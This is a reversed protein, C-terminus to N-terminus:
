DKDDEKWVRVLPVLSFRIFLGVVVLGAFWPSVEALDQLWQPAAALLDRLDSIYVFFDTM